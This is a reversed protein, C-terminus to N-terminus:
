DSREPVLHLRHETQPEICGDEDDFAKDGQPDAVGTAQLTAFPFLNRDMLHSLTIRGMASAM